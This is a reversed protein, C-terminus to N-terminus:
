ASVGRSPAKRLDCRSARVALVM